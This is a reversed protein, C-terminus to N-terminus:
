TLGRRPDWPAAFRLWPISSVSGVGSGVSALSVLKRLKEVRAPTIPPPSKGVKPDESKM